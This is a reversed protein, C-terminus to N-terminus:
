VLEALLASKIRFTSDQKPRDSEHEGPPLFQGQPGLATIITTRKEISGVSIMNTRIWPVLRHLIMHLNLDRTGVNYLMAILPPIFKPSAKEAPKPM